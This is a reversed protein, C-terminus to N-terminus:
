RSVSLINFPNNLAISYDVHKGVLDCLSCQNKLEKLYINEKHLNLLYASHDLSKAREFTGCKDILRCIIPNWKEIESLRRAEDVTILAFSGCSKNSEAFRIAAELMKTRKGSGRGCNLHFIKDNKEEQKCENETGKDPCYEFAFCNECHKTM